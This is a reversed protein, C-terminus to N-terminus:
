ANVSYYTFGLGHVDSVNNTIVFAREDHKNVLDIVRQYERYSITVMLMKLDKKNYGGIVPVITVGRKIVFLLDNLIDEDKESIITVTKKKNFGAEMYNMAGSTIGISLIAYIFSETDFVILSAAVVICDTVFLGVSTNLNFYKKFILPPISTGGTSSNNRYMITVSVGIIISGAIVSLMVDDILITSPIIGMFVPLTIAGIVTNLFVEKGLLFLTLALVLINSVMVFLSRDLGTLHEIIISLGTLGGAAINHPGLFLNVGAALLASGVLIWLLKKIWKLM